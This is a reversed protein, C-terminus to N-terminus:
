DGLPLQGAKILKVYTSVKKGKLLSLNDPFDPAVLIKSNLIKKDLDITSKPRAIIARYPYFFWRSGLDGWYDEAEEVSNFTGDITFAGDLAIM